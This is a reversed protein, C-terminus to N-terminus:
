FTISEEDTSKKLQELRKHGDPYATELANILWEKQEKLLFPATSDFDVHNKEKNLQEHHLVEHTYVNEKGPEPKLKILSCDPKMTWIAHHNYVKDDDSNSILELYKPPSYVNWDKELMFEVINKRDEDCISIDIDAHTRIKKNVFLELAWGGGIAYAFGCNKFFENCESLLKNM